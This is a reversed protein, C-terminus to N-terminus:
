PAFPVPPDELSNFPAWVLDSGHNLCISPL